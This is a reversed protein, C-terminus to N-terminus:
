HAQQVQFVRFEKNVKHEMLEQRVKHDPCVEQQEQHAKPVKHEQEIIELMKEIRIM